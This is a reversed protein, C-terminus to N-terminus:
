KKKQWHAKSAFYQVIYIMAFIYFIIYAFNQTNSSCAAANEAICCIFLLRYFEIM